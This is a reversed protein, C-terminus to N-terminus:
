YFRNNNHAAHPSDYQIPFFRYNLSATLAEEKKPAGSSM